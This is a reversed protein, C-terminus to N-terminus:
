QNKGKDPGKGAVARGPFQLVVGIEAEAGPLLPLPLGPFVAKGLAPAKAKVATGAAFGHETNGPTLTFYMYFTFAFHTIKISKPVFIKVLEFYYYQCKEYMFIYNKFISKM